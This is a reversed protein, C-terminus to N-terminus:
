NQFAFQGGPSPKSVAAAEDRACRSHSHWPFIQRRSPSPTFASKHPHERIDIINYHLAKNYKFSKLYENLDSCMKDAVALSDRFSVKFQHPRLLPLQPFQAMPLPNGLISEWNEQLRVALVGHPSGMPLNSTAPHPSSAKGQAKGM